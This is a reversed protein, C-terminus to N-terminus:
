SLAVSNISSAIFSALLIRPLLNAYVYVHTLTVYICSVYLGVTAFYIHLKMVNNIM